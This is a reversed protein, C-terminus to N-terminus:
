HRKTKWLTDWQKENNQHFLSSWISKENILQLFANGSPFITVFIISFNLHSFCSRFKENCWCVFIWAKPVIDSISQCNRKMSFLSFKKLFYYPPKAYTLKGTCFTKLFGINKATKQNFFQLFTIYASSWANQPQLNFLIWNLCRFVTYFLTKPSLFNRWIVWSLVSSTSHSYFTYKTPTGAVFRCKM